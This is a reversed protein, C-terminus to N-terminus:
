QLQEVRAWLERADFLSAAAALLVILAGFSWLAVGPVVIAVHALKALSVLVGLLFVEIMSWPRASQVWRFWFRLGPAIRGLKLPALMWTMALLELAPAAITTAFVLAAVLPRDQAQLAHVAGLLTTSVQQGQLDIMVIPFLNAIVFLIGAALTLALCRDLGDRTVRFLKAGCRACCATTGAPLRPATQLLDCEHCAILRDPESPKM